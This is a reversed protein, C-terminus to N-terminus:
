RIGLSQLRQSHLKYRGGCIQKQNPTPHFPVLHYVPITAWICTKSIHALARAWLALKLLEQHHYMAKVTGALEAFEKM